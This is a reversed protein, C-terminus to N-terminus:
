VSLPKLAGDDLVQMQDQVTDLRQRCFAMLMESRQYAAQMEDLPLQGSEVRGILLELEELAAEYSAPATNKSPPM